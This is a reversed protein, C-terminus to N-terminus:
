GESVVRLPEALISYVAREDSFRALYVQDALAPPLAESFKLNEIARPDPVAPVDHASLTGLHRRV